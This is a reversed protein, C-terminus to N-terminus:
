NNNANIIKYMLKNHNEEQQAHNAHTGKKGDKWAIEALNKHLKMADNHDTADFKRHSPHNSKDYIPKGSKTHGIVKGGRASEAEDMENSDEMEEKYMKKMDHHVPELDVYGGVKDFSEELLSYPGVKNKILFQKISFQNPM